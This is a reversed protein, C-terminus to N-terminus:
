STVEEHGVANAVATVKGPALRVDAEEILGSRLARDHAIAVVDGIAREREADPDAELSARLLPVIAARPRGAVFIVYRFGFRSEYAANLEELEASLRMREEEAGAAASERDYGQEIFSHASVSGPPAGIRPHADILEIQAERPMGLALPVAREFLAPWSGYPRGAALREIFGPAREFLPAVLAAFEVEPLADPAFPEVAEHV